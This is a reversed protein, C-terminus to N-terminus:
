LRAHRARLRSAGLRYNNRAFGNFWSSLTTRAFLQERAARVEEVVTNKWPAEAAKNAYAM